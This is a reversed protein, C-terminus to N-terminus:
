RAYCFWEGFDDSLCKGGCIMMDPWSVGKLISGGAVGGKLDIVEEGPRRTHLFALCAFGFPCACGVSAFPGLCTKLTAGEGLNIGSGCPRNVDFSRIIIMVPNSTFDRPPIPVQTCLYEGRLCRVIWAGEHYWHLVCGFVGSCSTCLYLMPSGHELMTAVFSTSSNIRFWAVEWPLLCIVDFNYKLVAGQKAVHLSCRSSM